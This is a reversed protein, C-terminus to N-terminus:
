PAPVGANASSAQLPSGVQYGQSNVLRCTFITSDGAPMQVVQQVSFIGNPLAPDPDFRYSVEYGDSTKNNSAQFLVPLDVSATNYHWSILGSDSRALLESQGDGDIDAAQITSYYPANDWHHTDTLGLPGADLGTWKQSSTDFAFTHLGDGGRVLLEARGDRNIDTLQLTSYYQPQNWGGADTFGLDGANLDYWKYERDFTYTFLGYPGRFILEAQGDGNIDAVRLTEYYQPQDWRNADDMGLIPANIDQWQNIARNFVFTHLGDASRVLLEAQGDGDIDALRLTSYYQPRNWGGADTLGLTGANLNQWRGNMMGFTLSTAM